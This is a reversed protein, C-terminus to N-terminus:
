FSVHAEVGINLGFNDRSLYRHGVLDIPSTHLPNVERTGPNVLDNEIDECPSAGGGCTPLDVGADAFTILHDTKWELDVVAAFRVHRGLAARIAFRAGTELHNEINSIGPHSLAQVGMETPDRDLVLPGSRRTDGAYAFVEWMESYDRGEFHGVVRAGADLSIRNGSTKDDLLYGEVGFQVGGQQPPDINSSGFGPDDYLSTSRTSVPTKWFLEFWGETWRLKKAVTTWVRVEHVGRSIGTENGPTFADFRMVQGAAIRLEAGLKWTPKTDDRRQNMLAIGVGAHLQDVGGRSAGRFMLDGSPPATPDRADFGEAPLFADEVTRLGARDLGDPVRLERAQAIIVPVAFSVWTDRWFALEIRPTLVHRFQQFELERDVPVRGAPDADVDGVDERAVTSQDLQYEYDVHVHAISPESDGTTPVVSAPHAMAVSPTAVLVVSALVRRVARTM